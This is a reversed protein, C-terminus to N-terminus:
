DITIANGILSGSLSDADKAAVPAAAANNMGKSTVVGALATGGLLLGAAGLIITKM